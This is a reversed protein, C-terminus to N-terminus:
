LCLWESLIKLWVWGQQDCCIPLNLNKTVPRNYVGAGSFLTSRQWTKSASEWSCGAKARNPARQTRSMLNYPSYSTLWMALEWKQLRGTFLINENCNISAKTRNQSAGPSKLIKKLDQMSICLIGTSMKYPSIYCNMGLCMKNEFWLGEGYHRLSWGRGPHPNQSEWCSFFFFGKGLFIPLM